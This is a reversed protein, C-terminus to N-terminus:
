WCTIKPPSPRPVANRLVSATVLSWLVPGATLLAFLFVAFWFLGPHPLPLSWNGPGLRLPSTARVTAHM